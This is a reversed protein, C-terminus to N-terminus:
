PDCDGDGAIREGGGSGRGYSGPGADLGVSGRYVFFFAQGPAPEVVDGFGATDNDPSDDELCAVPGLDIGGQGDRQLASVDGRIVDYRVPGSEADWTLVTPSPKGVRVVAAAERDVIWLEPLGDLNQGTFNGVGSFSAISGTSSPVIGGGGGFAFAGGGLSISGGASVGSRLAGVREISGGAFPVRYLDSPEDPDSEFVPATSSFYVFGGDGAIRAGGSAGEVFATLQRLAAGAPEYAFVETNGDANSGLPDANSTYVIRTADGSIDPAGSGAVPDGTVRELGSGDTRVRWVEFSGDANGGDLDANSEFVIWDGAADIRALRSTTDLAGDTLQALGTGDPNVRFIERSADLNTAFPDADSDFVIVSGGDSIAPNGAAVDAALGTVQTLGSGDAQVLFIEDSGDANTGLPDANSAFVITLRDAAISPASPTGSPLTTVQALDRGDTEVRWVQGTAFLGESRVFVARSGDATVDADQNFILTFAQLDVEGGGAGEIARLSVETDIGYFTVRNGSGSVTPLLSGVELLSSTLATRGTGDSGVTFIEFNGDLNVLPFLSAHNSHFVVTLGDDTISPSQATPEGILGLITGTVTLQRLATGDWQVAFLESQNVANGGTLDGDSQFAITAGNGSLAPAGSGFTAPTDTLQRLATGDALMAFVEGGLDANQGTLDADSAFVIREGDDSIGITGFGGDVTTTLQILGTGTREIVFLQDVHASNTGLPDTNSIFVIRSGDGAIAVAGVSGANPAPDDTLQTTIGTDRDLVFLELSEDHNEGTLNTPSPFAVYRGDDSVSVLASVGKRAATVEAPVGTVADFALIQFAHRPNTGFPDSTAGAFVTTGGDDMAGPGVTVTKEDTVQRVIQASVPAAILLTLFTATLISSRANM